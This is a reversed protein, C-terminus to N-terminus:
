FSSLASNMAKQVELEVDKRFRASNEFAGIKKEVFKRLKKNDDALNDSSGCTEIVSLLRVRHAEDVGYAKLVDDIEHYEASRRNVPGGHDRMLLCALFHAEIEERSHYDSEPSVGIEDMSRLRHGLALHALEHAVQYRTKVDVSGHDDSDARQYIVHIERVGNFNTVYVSSSGSPIGKLKVACNLRRAIAHALSGLPISEAEDVLEKGLSLIQQLRAQSFGNNPV